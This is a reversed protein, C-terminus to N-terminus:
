KKNKFLLWHERKCFLNNSNKTRNKYESKRMTMDVSCYDCKVTIYEAKNPQLGAEWAHRNNHSSTCWELNEISNNLKNGDIHNVVNYFYPNPIFFRAILRHVTESYDGLSYYLYGDKRLKPMKVAQQRHNYVVLNKDITCCRSVVILGDENEM